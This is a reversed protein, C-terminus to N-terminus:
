MGIHFDIFFTTGERREPVRAKGIIATEAAGVPIYLFVTNPFNRM